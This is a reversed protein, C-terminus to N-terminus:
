ANDNIVNETQAKELLDKTTKEITQQTEAYLKDRTLTLDYAQTIRKDITKLLSTNNAQWKKLHQKMAAINKKSIDRGLTYSIEIRSKKQDLKAKMLGEYVNQIVLDELERVSPIDLNKMIDDYYLIKNNNEQSITVISLQKLKNLQKEDLNRYTANKSDSKYDNYTSYAFLELTNYWTSHETGKLSKINPHDLLTGFSYISPARLIEDILAAAASGKASKLLV